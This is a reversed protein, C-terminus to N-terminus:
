SIQAASSLGKAKILPSFRGEGAPGWEAPGSSGHSTKPLRWLPECLDPMATLLVDRFRGM